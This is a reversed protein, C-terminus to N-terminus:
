KKKFCKLKSDSMDVIDISQLTKENVKCFYKWYDQFSTADFGINQTRRNFEFGKLRKPQARKDWYQWFYRKGNKLSCDNGILYITKFGMIFAIHVASGMSTRSGIIPEDQTLKLGELNYQQNEPSYWWTHEYLITNDLDKLHEHWKDKYLFKYCKNKVVDKYYSWNKVASDDSVFFDCLSYALIGSNVTIVKKDKLFDLDIDNVSPGGGIICVSENNYKNKFDKLKM